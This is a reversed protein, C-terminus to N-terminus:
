SPINLRQRFAALAIITTTHTAFHVNALRLLPKDGTVLVAASTERCLDFLYNDNPDPADSFFLLPECSITFDRFIDSMEQPSPLLYRRLKERGAVDCVEALLTPSSFIQVRDAAAAQLVPFLKNSILLSLWVNADLVANM